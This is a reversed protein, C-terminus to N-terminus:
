RSSDTVVFHPLPGVRAAKAGRSPTMLSEQIASEIVCLRLCRGRTPEYTTANRCHLRGCCITHARRREHTPSPQPRGYITTRNRSGGRVHRDRPSESEAVSPERRTSRAIRPGSSPIATEPPLIGSDAMKIGAEAFKVLFIRGDMEASGAVFRGARERYPSADGPHASPRPRGPGASEGRGVGRPRGLDRGRHSPPGTPGSGSPCGAAQRVARRKGANVGHGHADRGGQEREEEGHEARQGREAVDRKRRTMVGPADGRQPRRAARGAGSSARGDIRSRTTAPTFRASVAPFGYTPCCGERRSAARLAPKRPGCRPTSFTASRFQNQVQTPHPCPVGRQNQGSSRPACHQHLLRM